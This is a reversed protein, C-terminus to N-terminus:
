ASEDRRGTRSSPLSHRTGARRGHGPRPPIPGRDRDIIDKGRAGGQRGDVRRSRGAAHVRHVPHRLRHSRALEAFTVVEDENKRPDRRHQDQDADSGRRSRWRDARGDSRRPRRAPDDRRLPAHPPFRLRRDGSRPRSGGPGRGKPSCSGNTTMSIDLLRRHARLRESWSQSM